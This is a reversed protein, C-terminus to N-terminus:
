YYYGVEELDTNVVGIEEALERTAAELYTEGEDVHGAVSDDWKGAGSRVHASRKQLLM